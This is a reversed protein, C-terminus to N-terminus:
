AEDEAPIWTPVMVTKMVVFSYNKEGRSAFHLEYQRKCNEASERRRYRLIMNDETAWWFSVGELPIPNKVFRDIFGPHKVMIAYETM